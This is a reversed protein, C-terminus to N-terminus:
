QPELDRQTPRRDLRTNRLATLRIWGGCPAQGYHIVIKKTEKEVGMEPFWAAPIIELEGSTEVRVVLGDREVLLYGDQFAASCAEHLLMRATVAQGAGGVVDDRVEIAHGDSRIERRHRPSGKLRGYGDHTGVLEIGKETQRFREVTVRPRRAVRFAGWFEAQDADAVTVTNHARTSRSYARIPGPHYEYVGTDVILRKGAVSWEFSLVDGHGHAPLHDPGIPGCDILVLADDTRVGYYGAAALGVGRSPAVDGGLQSRYVDLVQEPSYAMHLGSDGFLSPLGDPHMLDVAVQAMGHLRLELNQKDKARVVHHCELLDAMVQLHYSPCLEFHMGDSLVQEELEHQLLRAGLEYWDKAEAGQFFRGCWLLAKINKILHNGGIDTELNRVLFRVQEIISLHLSHRVDPSLEPRRAIQQMWVVVRISLSFSNWNDLWYGERYPPNNEIWDCTLRAFLDDSAAELFEMYHLNLKELRTGSEFGAPHWEVPDGLEYWQGVLYAEPTKGERLLRHRPDFLPQPPDMNLAIRKPLEEPRGNSLWRGRGNELMRRKTMLWLRRWLQRPRTHRLTPVLLKFRRIVTM